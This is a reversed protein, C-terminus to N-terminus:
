APQPGSNKARHGAKPTSADFFANTVALRHPRKSLFARITDPTSPIPQKKADVIEGEKWGKFVDMLRNIDEQIAGSATEIAENHALFDADDRLEFLGIITHTDFSGGNPTCIEIPWEFPHNEVFVFSM